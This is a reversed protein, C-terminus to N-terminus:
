WSRPVGEVISTAPWESYARSMTDTTTESSWESRNKTRERAASCRSITASRCWNATAFRERRGRSRKVVSSRTSHAHSDCAIARSASPAGCRAAPSRGRTADAHSEGTRSTSSGVDCQGGPRALRHGRTSERSTWRSDATPRAASERPAGSAPFRPSDTSRRWICAVAGSTWRRLRPPGEEGIVRALDHGGVEEDHRRDREPQEEHEHDERVVTSSDDVHRDGLM